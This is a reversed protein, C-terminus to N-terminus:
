RRLNELAAECRQLTFGREKDADGFENAVAKGRAAKGDLLKLDNMLSHLDLGPLVALRQLGLRVNEKDSAKDLFLPYGIKDFRHAQEFGASVRDSQHKDAMARKRALQFFLRARQLPYGEEPPKGVGLNTMPHAVCDRETHRAHSSPCTIRLTQRGDDEFRHGLPNLNDPRSVSTDRFCDLM